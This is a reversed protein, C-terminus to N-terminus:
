VSLNEDYDLNVVTLEGDTAMFDMAWRMGHEVAHGCFHLAPFMAALRPFIPGPFDWATSFRITIADEASRAIEVSDLEWKTGWNKVRWDDWDFAGYKALLEGDRNARERNKPDGDLAARSKDGDGDGYYVRYEMHTDAITGKLESPMPIIRDFKFEPGTAEVFRDLEAPNGRVVFATECWNPM